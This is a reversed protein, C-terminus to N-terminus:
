MNKMFKTGLYLHMFVYIIEKMISYAVVLNAYTMEFFVHM